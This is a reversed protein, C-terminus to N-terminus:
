CFQIILLLVLSNQLFASSGAYKLSPYLDKPTITKNSVPASKAITKPPNPAATDKSGGDSNVAFRGFTDSHQQLSKNSIKGAAYIFQSTTTPFKNTSPLNVSIPRSMLITVNTGRTNQNIIKWSAQKQTPPVNGTAFYESTAYGTGNLFLATIDANAMGGTGGFGFALYNLPQLQQFKVTMTVVNASILPLLCIENNKSCSSSQRPVDSPLIPKGNQILPKLKDSTTVETPVATDSPPATAATAKSATVPFYGVLKSHQSIGTSSVPGSAWVFPAAATRPFAADIGTITIQGSTGGPSVTWTNQVKQPTTVSKSFYSDATYGNSGPMIFVMTQNEMNQGGYGFALWGTFPKFSIKISIQIGSITPTLCIENGTSCSQSFLTPWLLM